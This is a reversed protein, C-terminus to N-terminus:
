VNKKKQVFGNASHEDWEAEASKGGLYFAVVFMLVVIPLVFMVTIFGVVFEEM